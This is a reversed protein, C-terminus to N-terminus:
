KIYNRPIKNRDEKYGIRVENTDHEIDTKNLTKVYHKITSNTQFAELEM